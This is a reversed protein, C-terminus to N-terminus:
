RGFARRMSPRPRAAFAHRKQVDADRSAPRPQAVPATSVPWCSRWRESRARRRRRTAARLGSGSPWCALARTTSLWCAIWSSCRSIPFHPVRARRLASRSPRRRCARSRPLRRRRRHLSAARREPRADFAAPPLCARLLDLPDGCVTRLGQSLDPRVARRVDLSVERGRATMVLYPDAGAFSFRGLRPSPLASDLLWANRGTRLAPVFDLLDRARAVERVVCATRIPETM